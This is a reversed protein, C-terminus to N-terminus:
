KSNRTCEILKKYTDLYKSVVINWDYVNLIRQRGKMGMEKRMETKQCLLSIKDALEKSNKPAVLFGCERDVITDQIGGIKTGIVPKSCAMAELIVMGFPEILSPLIFIDCSSYVSPMKENPIFDECLFVNNELKLSKIQEHLKSKLPGRGLIILKVNRKRRVVLKMADVLYNLGKYPHLRAVSLLIYDNETLDFRTHLYNSKLPKYFNSDIGIPIVKIKEEPVKQELLFKKASYAHTTISDCKRRVYKAFTKDVFLLPFKLINPPYYYRENTVLCPVKKKQAAILAFLSSIQCDEHTHIIDFSEKMLVNILAPMFPNEVFDLVTPIYTIKFGHDVEQQPIEIRDGLSHKVKRSVLRNSAFLSVSHGKYALFECLGYEPQKGIPIFHPTVVAIKM